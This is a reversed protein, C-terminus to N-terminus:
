GGLPKADRKWYYNFILKIHGTKKRAPEARFLKPMANKQKNENRTKRCYNSVCKKSTLFFFM